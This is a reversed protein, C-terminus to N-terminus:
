NPAEDELMGAFESFSWAVERWVCGGPGEDWDNAVVRPSTKGTRYDLVIGLDDGPFRNVAAFVALEVDLWPLRIPEASKSGRAIHYVEADRPYRALDAFATSTQRIAEISTLFDVPERLFPILRRLSQEGPHRWRGSELLQLFQPPLPLGNVEYQQLLPGGLGVFSQPLAAAVSMDVM